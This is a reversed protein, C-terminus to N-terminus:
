KPDAGAAPTEGLLRRVMKDRRMRARLGALQGTEDLRHRLAHTAVGQTRAL